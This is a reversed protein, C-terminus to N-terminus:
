GSLPEIDEAEIDFAEEFRVAGVPTSANVEADLTRRLILGLLQPAVLLSSQTLDPLM